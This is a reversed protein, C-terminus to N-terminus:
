PQSPFFLFLRNPRDVVKEILWSYPEILRCGAVSFYAYEACRYEYRYTTGFRMAIDAGEGPPQRRRGRRPSLHCSREVDAIRSGDM